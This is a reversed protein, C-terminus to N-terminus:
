APPPEGGLPRGPDSGGPSERTRARTPSHPGRAGHTCQSGGNYVCLLMIFLNNSEHKYKFNCMTLCSSTENIWTREVLLEASAALEGLDELLQPYAPRAPVAATRWGSVRSRESESSPAKSGGECTGALTERTMRVRRLRRLRKPSLWEVRARAKVTSGAWTHRHRADSWFHKEM